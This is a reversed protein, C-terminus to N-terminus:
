FNVEWTVKKADDEPEDFLANIPDLFMELLKNILESKNVLKDYIKDKVDDKVWHNEALFAGKFLMPIGIAPQEHIMEPKFGNQSLLRVTRKNFSLTYRTGEFEFSLKKNEM